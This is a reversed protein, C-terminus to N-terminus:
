PFKETQYPKVLKIIRTYGFPAGVTIEYTQGALLLFSAVYETSPPNPSTLFLGAQKTQTEGTEINRVTVNVSPPEHRGYNEITVKLTFFVPYPIKITTTTITETITTTRPPVTTVAFYEGAVFGCLFVCLISIALAISRRQEM